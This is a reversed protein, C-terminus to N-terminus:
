PSIAGRTLAMQSFYSSGYLVPGSNLCSPVTCRVIRRRANGPPLGRGFGPGYRPSGVQLEPRSLREREARAVVADAGVERDEGLRGLEDLQAQEVGVARLRARRQGLHGRPDPVAVRGVDPGPLAVAVADVPRVVRGAAHAAVRRLQQEVRVGHRDVALHAPVLREEGVAELVGLAREVVGVARREHGLRHDDARVEVPRVVPRRAHREVVAHDVLDVDLAEGCVCGSMGSGSRPVYAPSACGAAM